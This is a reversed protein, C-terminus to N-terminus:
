SSALAKAPVAIFALAKSNLIVASSFVTQHEVLNVFLQTIVMARESNSGCAAAIV